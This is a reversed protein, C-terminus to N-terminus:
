ISVEFGPLGISTLTKNFSQTTSLSLTTDLEVHASLNNAVARFFGTNIFDLAKGAATTSNSVTVEGEVIDITGSISCNNCNVTASDTAAGVRSNKDTHGSAKREMSNSERTLCHLYQNIQPCRFVSIPTSLPTRLPLRHRQRQPLLRCPKEDVFVRMCESLTQDTDV